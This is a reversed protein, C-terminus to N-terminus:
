AQFRVSGYWGKRQQGGSRKVSSRAEELAPDQELLSRVTVQYMWQAMLPPGLLSWALRRPGASLTQMTAGEAPLQIRMASSLQDMWRLRLRRM